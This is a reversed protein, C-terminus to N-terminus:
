ARRVRAWFTRLAAVTDDPNEEALYHDADIAHGDVVAAYESWVATVDFSRGVYSSAGWLALLPASVVRGATRDARDHDLDTTAAARYDACTAAIGGPARMSRVYQGFTDDDIVPGRVNRGAFRSRMWAETDAAILSEPLPSPRTLFFWHFYTEAMSRDVHTFMHLTPVIDLVAISRVRQPHDLALRHAVRGGRDHGVVDATDIGLADLVGIQDQAMARKSYTRHEPDDHPRGSQGYGRLDATVVTHDRALEFLVRDWMRQTEPYGHLLLVAPGTGAVRAAITVGDNSVRIEEVDPASPM